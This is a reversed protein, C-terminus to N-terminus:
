APMWYGEGPRTLIYRPHRPDDELKQRLRAITVWLLEREQDDYDAGWVNQLLWTGSLVKGRHLVFQLLLRYETASLSIPVGRKSVEARGLDIRLDNYEIVSPTSRQRSGIRRLVARIRALLETISFPKVVYDDAGANLGRVRDEERNQTTLIILGVDSFSRIRQCLAFGDEHPLLIDLLVLHIPHEHLVKLAEEGSQATFVEYGEVRLNAELLDLYPLENDVVLISYSM